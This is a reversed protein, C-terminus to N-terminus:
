PPGRPPHRPRVRRWGPNGIGAVRPTVVLGDGILDASDRAGTNRGEEGSRGPPSRPSSVGFVGIVRQPFVRAPSSRPRQQAPRDAAQRASPGRFRESNEVSTFEPRLDLRRVEGPAARRRSCVGRRALLLRPLALDQQRRRSALQRLKARPPHRPPGLALGTPLRSIRTFAPPHDSRCLFHALCRLPRRNAVRKKLPFTIVSDIKARTLFSRSRSDIHDRL